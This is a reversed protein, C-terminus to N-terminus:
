KVRTITLEIYGKNNEYFSWADNAFCYLYGAHNILLPANEQHEALQIYQHPIASGDHKVVQQQETQHNVNLNKHAQGSDNAIAGILGFWPKDEVRKSAFFDTSVNKNFRKILSEFKGLFSSTARFLDGATRQNNYETGLWDCSEVGDQWQGKASFVYEHGQELYVSTKNWRCKAYIQLTTAENVALMQTPYYPEHEIPSIRQRIFASDHFQGSNAKILAPINRPRSRLKSFVGKFSNHLVGIPNDIILQDIDQRFELGFSKSQKIMWKLAGNSLDSDQYGGGVDSHVGPFWLEVADNHEKVNSWRTVTFSSRKEDMAMAHRAHEIHDALKTDHFQWSDKRDFLNIIELDDPIGLAGVTDWVGLFTIPIAGKDHFFSWHNKAWQNQPMKDKYGSNFATEVRHWSEEASIGQLNVLGKGLFGALSRASFAGRSFGFLFVEDGERYNLGLWHYASSIHRNIGIGLAGGLFEDILGIEEGGVGPHYFVKQTVESSNATASICNKLRYVNTPTTVGNEEQEPNNWTGDFCIILRKMM